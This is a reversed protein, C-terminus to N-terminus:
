RAVILRALPRIPTEYVTCSYTSYQIDADDNMRIEKQAAKAHVSYCAPFPQVLLSPMCLKELFKAIKEDSSVDRTKPTILVRLTFCRSNEHRSKKRLSFPGLTKRYLYTIMQLEWYPFLGYHHKAKLGIEYNHSHSDLKQFLLNNYLTMGWTSIIDCENMYHM